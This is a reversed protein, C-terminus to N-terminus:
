PQWYEKDYNLEKLQLVMNKKEKKEEVIVNLTPLLLAGPIFYLLFGFSFVIVFYIM